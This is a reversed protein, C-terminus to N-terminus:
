EQSDMCPSACRLSLRRCFGSSRGARLTKFRSLLVVAAISAARCAASLLSKPLAACCNVNANFRDCAGAADISRACRRELHM